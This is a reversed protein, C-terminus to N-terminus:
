RVRHELASPIEDAARANTRLDLKLNRAADDFSGHAASLKKLRAIKEAATPEAPLEQGPTSGWAITAGGRTVLEFQMEANNLKIQQQLPRIQYLGLVKWVQALQAAIKAGGTVHPDNWPTGVPGFPQSSVGAIRPYDRAEAATFDGSPLLVGHIDVPYLGDPVEVMAVPRRYVLEVTAGAPYRKSVRTVSAVWPHLAFAKAIRESLDDDTLPLPEDLSGDRLAEAKVDSRIWSPIPTTEIDHLTLQYQAGRFVDSRVQLWIARAAFAAALVVGAILLVDRRLVLVRLIYGAARGTASAPPAQKSGTAMAAEM